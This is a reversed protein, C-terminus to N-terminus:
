ITAMEVFDFLIIDNEPRSCDLIIKLFTTMKLPGLNIDDIATFVSRM